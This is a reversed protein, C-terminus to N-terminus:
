KVGLNFPETEQVLLLDGERSFIYIMFKVSEGPSKIEFDAKTPRLRSVAFPEGASYKIGSLIMSNADKPYVLIGGSSIMFVLVHGTVKTEPNSSIISFNLSVRNSDKGAELQDLTVRKETLLNQMGYPKKILMLFPEEVSSGSSAQDALKEAMAQNSEQLAKLETELGIVKSDTETLVTPLSPSPAEKLRSGLGWVFLGSLLLVFVVPVVIFLARIFRKTIKFYKPPLPADYVVIAVEDGDKQIFEKM